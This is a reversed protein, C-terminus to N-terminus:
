CHTVLNSCKNYYECLLNISREKQKSELGRQRIIDQCADDIHQLLNSQFKDQITINSLSLEGQFELVEAFLQKKTREIIDVLHTRKNVNNHTNINYSSISKEFGSVVPPMVDFPEQVVKNNDLFVEIKWTGIQYSNEILKCYNIPVTIEDQNKIAVDKDLLPPTLCEGAPNCIKIILKFVINSILCPFKIYLRKIVLNNGLHLTPGTEKNFGGYKLTFKTRNILVPINLVSFDCKEILDYEKNIVRAQFDLKHSHLPISYLSLNYKFSNQNGIDVFSDNTAVPDIIVRRGHTRIDKQEIVFYEPKESSISDDYFFAISVMDPFLVEFNKGFNSNIGFTM